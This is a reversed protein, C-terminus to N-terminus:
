SKGLILIPTPGYCKVNSKELLIEKGRLAIGDRSSDGLGYFSETDTIPVSLTHREGYETVKIRVARKAMFSVSDELVSAEAQNEMPVGVGKLIGYRSLMSRSKEGDRLEVANENIKLLSLKM